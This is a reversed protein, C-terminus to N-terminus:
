KICLWVNVVNHGKEAILINSCACTLCTKAEEKFPKKELLSYLLTIFKGNVSQQLACAKRSWGPQCYSSLLSLRDTAVSWWCYLAGRVTSVSSEMPNNTLWDNIASSVTSWAIQLKYYHLLRFPVFVPVSRSEEQQSNTHYTLSIRSGIFWSLHVFSHTHTHTTYPIYMPAMPIGVHQFQRDSDQCNIARNGVTCLINDDCLPSLVSSLIM